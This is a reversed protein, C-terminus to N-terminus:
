INEEKSLLSSYGCAQLAFSLVATCCQVACRRNEFSGAERGRCWGWGCWEDLLGEREGVDRVTNIKRAGGGDEM